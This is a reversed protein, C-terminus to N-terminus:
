DDAEVDELVEEDAGERDALQESLRQQVDEDLEVGPVPGTSGDERRELVPSNLQADRRRLRREFDQDAEEMSEVQNELRNRAERQTIADGRSDEIIDEGDTERGVVGIDEDPRVPEERDFGGTGAERMQDQLRPGDDEDSEADDDEDDEALAFRDDEGFSDGEPAAGGGYAQFGESEEADVSETASETESDDDGVMMAMGVGAVGLCVAVLVALPWRSSADDPSNDDRRRDTADVDRVTGTESSSDSHNM